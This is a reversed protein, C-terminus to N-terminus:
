NGDDEDENGSSPAEAGPDLAGEMYIDNEVQNYAIDEAFSPMWPYDPLPQDQEWPDDAYIINSLM